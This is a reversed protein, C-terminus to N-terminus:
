FLQKIQEATRNMEDLIARMKQLGSKSTQEIMDLMYLIYNEWNGTETVGHLCQYYKTKYGILKVVFPASILL